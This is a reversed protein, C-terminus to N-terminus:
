SKTKGMRRARSIGFVYLDARYALPLTEELPAMKLSYKYMPFPGYNTISNQKSWLKKSLSAMKSFFIKEIQKWQQDINQSHMMIIGIVAM